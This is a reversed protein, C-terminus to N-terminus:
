TAIRSVPMSLINDPQREVTTIEVIPVTQAATHTCRYLLGSSYHIPLYTIDM